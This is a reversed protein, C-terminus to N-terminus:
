SGTDTGSVLDRTKARLQEAARQLHAQTVRRAEAGDGAAVALARVLEDHEGLSCPVDEPMAELFGQPIMRGHGVAAAVQMSKNVERHFLWNATASDDRSRMAIAVEIKLERVRVLEEPTIREAAWEAAVGLLDAM